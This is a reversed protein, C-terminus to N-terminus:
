EDDDRTNNRRRRREPLNANGDSLFFTRAAILTIFVLFGVIIVNFFIVLSTEILIFVILFLKYNKYRKALDSENDNRCLSDWDKEETEM